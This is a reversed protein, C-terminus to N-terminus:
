AIKRLELDDAAEMGGNLSEWYARFLHEAEQRKAPTKAREAVVRRIIEPDYGQQKASKFLESRDVALSKLEANVGEIQNVIQRLQNIRDTM